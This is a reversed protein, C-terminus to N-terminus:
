PLLRGAIRMAASRSTAGQARSGLEMGSPSVELDNKLIHIVALILPVDLSRRIVKPLRDDRYFIAPM